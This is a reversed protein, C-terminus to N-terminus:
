YERLFAEVGARNRRTAEACFGVKELATALARPGGDITEARPGFCARADERHEEDRFNGLLSLLRSREDDRMLPVIEDCRDFWARARFANRADFKTRSGTRM